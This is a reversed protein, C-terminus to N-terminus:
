FEDARLTMLADAGSMAADFHTESAPLLREFFFKATGLKGSFFSALQPNRERGAHAACAMRLWLAGLTVLGFLQLYDTAAGAVHWESAAQWARLRATADRLKAVALREAAAMSALSAISAAHETCAEVSALWSEFVRGDDLGIKRLVLDLAQIGNTGEYLPVIRADRYFQEMGNEHIYGYGGHIQIGLETVKLACDSLFSKLVPTLLALRNEAAEGEPSNARAARVDLLLAMDLYFARMGETLAKMTLLSRRVDPHDIILDRGDNGTRATSDTAKSVKPAVGQRREKAYALANQYSIEAVGASQVAVGVRSSNMMTFMARLGGHPKGILWGRAGDFNLVATAQARIGMKHEISGTNVNNPAGALAGPLDQALRKPVVFLSLGRTGAPADPLRALVLHVINDTLDHDGSSIFIKTGTIRYSGDADPEARTRLRSLDSGSDPETLCMTGMWSGDVLKPLYIQKLEDNGHALIARYAGQSLGPYMGFSMSGSAVFERVMLAVSPPLGQGGWDPSAALAPWGNQRYLEYAEKYGKPTTVAGQDFHCGERDGPLNIPVLVDKVFEAAGDLVAMVVDLTAEEFGPLNPTHQDYGFVDELLFRIERIPADYGPM